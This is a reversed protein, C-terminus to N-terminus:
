SLKEYVSVCQNVSQILYLLECTKVQSLKIMRDDELNGEHNLFVKGGIGDFELGLVEARLESRQFLQADARSVSVTPYLRCHLAHRQILTDNSVTGIKQFTANIRLM